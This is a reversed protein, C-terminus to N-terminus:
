CRGRGLVKGAREAVFSELRLGVPLRMLLFEMLLSECPSTGVTLLYEVGPLTEALMMGLKVYTQNTTVWLSIM